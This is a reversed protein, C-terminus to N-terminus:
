NGFSVQFYLLCQWIYLKTRFVKSGHQLINTFLVQHDFWRQCIVINQEVKDLKSYSLANYFASFYNVRLTVVSKQIYKM